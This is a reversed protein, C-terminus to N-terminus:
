VLDLLLRSHTESLLLLQGRGRGRGGVVSDAVLNQTDAQSGTMDALSAAAFYGSVKRRGGGDRTGLGHVELGLGGAAGRTPVLLPAGGVAVAACAGAPPDHRGQDGAAANAGHRAPVRVVLLMQM